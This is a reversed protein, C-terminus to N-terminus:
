SSSATIMSGVRGVELALCIFQIPGDVRLEVDLEVALKLLQVHDDVGSNEILEVVLELGLKLLQVHDDVGSNEM